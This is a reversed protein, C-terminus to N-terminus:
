SVVHLDLKHWNTGDYVFKGYNTIAVNVNIGASDFHLTHGGAPHYVEITHGPPFNGSPNITRAADTTVIWINAQDFTFTLNGTTTIVKVEDILRYTHTDPTSDLSQPVAAYLMGHADPTHSMWLASMATDAFNGSEPAAYMNDLDTHSDVANAPDVNGVGGKTLPSMYMPSTRVFTRRDHVIPNTNLSTTVTGAGGTMTYRLVAIVTTQHILSTGASPDSLFVNPILPTGLSTEKPTGMEYRLHAEPSSRSDLYVVVYVDSTAAPVAPLEGSHNAGAGTTGVVFTEHSGPGGAFTYLMGDIVCYGGYVKIEGQSAGVELFGPTGVALSNRLSDGSATSELRFIGNGHIGEYLNTLSPSSLGDGDRLGQANTGMATASTHGALPNTM